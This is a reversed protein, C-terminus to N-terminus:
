DRNRLYFCASDGEGRKNLEAAQKQYGDWEDQTFADPRNGPRYKGHEIYPIGRIYLESSTFQQCSSDYERLF